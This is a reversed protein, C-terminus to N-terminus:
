QSLLKTNLERVFLEPVEDVVVLRLWLAAAKIWKKVIANEGSLM